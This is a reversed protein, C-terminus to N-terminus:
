GAIVNTTRADNTKSLVWSNHQKMINGVNPTCCYMLKLTNLNFIKHYVNNKPFHKKVLKIFLKGIITKTNQSYPRSFWTVKRNEIRRANQTNSNKLSMSWLHGSHKVATEYIIQIKDFEEKNCTLDSIRKNIVKPM